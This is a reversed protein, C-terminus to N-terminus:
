LVLRSTELLKRIRRLEELIAHADAEEGIRERRDERGRLGRRMEEHLSAWDELGALKGEYGTATAAQGATQVQISGIGLARDYLTRQLRFDTIMMMPINQQIKTLIGKRIIVKDEEIVYELNRYWLIVAPMSILWMLLVLGGTSGWTIAALTGGDVRPAALAITLHTIGACAAIMATITGLVLYQKTLWRRDPRISM